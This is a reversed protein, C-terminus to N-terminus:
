PIVRHLRQLDLICRKQHKKAERRSEIEFPNDWYGKEITFRNYEKDFNKDKQRAHVYEHIITNTLERINPHNNVFITMNHNRSTYHGNYKKSRYYKIQFTPKKTKEYRINEHCWENVLNTYQTKNVRIKNLPATAIRLYKLQEFLGFIVAIIAISFSIISISLFITSIM